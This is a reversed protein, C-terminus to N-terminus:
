HLRGRKQTYMQEDAMRVYQKLTQGGSPECQVVGASLSVTYPREQMLNFAHV